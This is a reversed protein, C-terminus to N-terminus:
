APAIENLGSHELHRRQGPAAHQDARRKTGLCQRLLRLLLLWRQRRVRKDSDRRISGHRQDRPIGLDTLVDLRHQRHQNRLFQLDVPFRYLHFLGVEVRLIAVLARSAAAGADFLQIGM